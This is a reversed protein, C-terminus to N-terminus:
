ALEVSRIGEQTFSICEWNPYEGRKIFSLSENGCECCGVLWRDKEHAMDIWDM